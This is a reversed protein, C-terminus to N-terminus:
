ASTEDVAAEGEVPAGSGETECLAASAAAERRQAPTLNAEPLGAPNRGSRHSSVARYGAYTSAAVGAVMMLRFMGRM